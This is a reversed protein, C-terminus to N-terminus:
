ISMKLARCCFPSFRQYQRCCLLKTPSQESTRHRLDSTQLRGDMKRPLTIQENTQTENKAAMRATPRTVNQWLGKQGSRARSELQQYKNFFSHRFRRDAYARGESLLVENLFRGDPLQVYALLRGYKGRTPNPADLYVVVPKALAWERAFETAQLGFYMPPSREGATEPADIGLLRVRTRDDPGDPIDIDLTDGDIVHAVTFTKGHYKDLDDAPTPSESIRRHPWRRGATSHDLWVLLVFGLLCLLLVGTKRRRSMPQTPRNRKFPMDNEAFM